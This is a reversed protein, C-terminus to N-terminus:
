RSGNISASPSGEFGLRVFIQAPFSTGEQLWEMPPTNSARSFDTLRRTWAIRSIQAGAELTFRAKPSGATVGTGVQAIPVLKECICGLGAILRPKFTTIPSREFVGRLVMTFHDYGVSKGIYQVTTNGSGSGGTITTYECGGSQIHAAVVLDTRLWQALRRGAMLGFSPLVSPACSTPNSPRDLAADFIGPEFAAPPSTTFGFAAGFSWSPLSDRQASLPLPAALALMCFIQLSTTPKM